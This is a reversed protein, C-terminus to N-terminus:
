ARDLQRYIITIPNFAPSEGDLLLHSKRYRVKDALQMIRSPKPLPFHSRPFHFRSLTTLRSLLLLPRTLSLLRTLSPLKIVSRRYAAMHTTHVATRSHLTSALTTCITRWGMGYLGIMLGREFVLAVWGCLRDVVRLWAVWGRLWAVVCGCSLWAVVCGCVM